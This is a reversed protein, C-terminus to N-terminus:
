AIRRGRIFHGGALGPRRVPLRQHPAFTASIRRRTACPEMEDCGVCRGTLATVVHQDLEAQAQDLHDLVTRSLYSATM